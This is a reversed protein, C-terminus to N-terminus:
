KLNRRMQTIFNTVIEMNRFTFIITFVRLLNLIFQLVEILIQIVNVQM